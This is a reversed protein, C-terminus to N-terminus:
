VKDEFNLMEIIQKVSRVNEDSSSCSPLANWLFFKSYHHAISFAFWCYCEDKFNFNVFNYDKELVFDKIKITNNGSGFLEFLTKDGYQIQFLSAILCVQDKTLVDKM